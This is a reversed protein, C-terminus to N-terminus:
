NVKYINSRFLFQQSDFLTREGVTSHMVSNYVQDCNINYGIIRGDDGYYTLQM